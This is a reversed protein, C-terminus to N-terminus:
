KGWGMIKSTIYEGIRAAVGCNEKDVGYTTCHEGNLQPECGIRRAIVIVRDYGYDEAIRKAASIPIRKMPREGSRSTPENKM